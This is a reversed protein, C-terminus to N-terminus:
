SGNTASLWHQLRKELAEFTLTTERLPFADPAIVLVRSYGAACLLSATRKEEPALRQAAHHVYGALMLGDTASGEPDEEDKVPNSTNQDEFLVSGSFPKIKMRIGFGAVLVQPQVRRLAEAAGWQVFSNNFVLAGNGSLMLGRVFERVRADEGIRAPVIPRIDLRKLKATTTDVSDLSRRIANLEKLFEKRLGALSDWDLSTAAGEAPSLSPRTELVWTSEVPELGAPAPRKAITQILEALSNGLPKGLDVWRGVKAIEPWLPERLPIGPPLAAIVLRPISRLVDSAAKQEITSFAKEVETRWQRYFPSRALLGSEQVSIGESHGDWPPLAMKAEIAVIPQFLQDFERQPLDGLYRCQSLLRRQEAPFLQDWGGLNGKLAAGFTRPLRTILRSVDKASLQEAM